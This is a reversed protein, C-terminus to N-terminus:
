GAEKVGLIELQHIVPQEFAQYGRLLFQEFRIGLGGEDLRGRYEVIALGPVRGSNSSYLANSMTLTSFNDGSVRTVARGPDSGMAFTEATSSHNVFRQIDLSQVTSSDTTPDYTLKLHRRLQSPEEPFTFKGTKCNWYIAGVVFKTTSDVSFTGTLSTYAVQTGSTYSTIYGYMGRGTGSYFYVPLGVHASTFISSSSRLDGVSSASTATGALPTLILDSLGEGFMKIGDDEFGV